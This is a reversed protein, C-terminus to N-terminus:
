RIYKGLTDSFLAIPICLFIWLVTYPLCIQGLLNYPASSYSWVNWGLSLNVICGTLFEAVTIIGGGTIAKIVLPTNQMREFTSLLTYLCLGGLIFMSWHTYGRWIIEISCYGFGGIIFLCIFRNM